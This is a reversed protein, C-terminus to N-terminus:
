AANRDFGTLGTLSRAAVRMGTLGPPYPTNSDTVNVQATLGRTPFASFSAAATFAVGNLFDRRTISPRRSM